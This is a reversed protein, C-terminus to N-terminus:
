SLDIFNHHLNEEGIHMKEIIMKDTHLKAESRKSM